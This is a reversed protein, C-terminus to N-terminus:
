TRVSPMRSHMLGQQNNRQRPPIGDAQLEDVLLAQPVHVTAAHKRM